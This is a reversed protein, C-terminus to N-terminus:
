EHWEHGRRKKSSNGVAAGHAKKDSESKDREGGVFIEEGLKCEGFIYEVDKRDCSPALSHVVILGAVHHKFGKFAARHHGSSRNM